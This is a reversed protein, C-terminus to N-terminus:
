LWSALLTAIGLFSAFGCVDTITTLVISSSQAPDQGVATLLIPIGAGAIGAAVMSVIMSIGIVMALGQSHSWLYVCVSTTLAVAVGNLFGVSVEKVLVRLWQRIRIERLALGRITVALAQAGTNGAQGAVVPLLVALTTFRAITNEFLGVVAAALFATALNIELWPLRKKVAFAPSSLAREDPSAGVLTLLDTSAEEQAAAMLEHYRIVGLLHEHFDIVPLSSLRRGELLEAIEERGATAQVRVPTGRSLQALTDDPPAVALDQLSVAGVLREEEDILFVDHIRRQRLARIRDLARAVTTEPRFSTVRPDMLSGATDPPYSILTRLERGTKPELHSLYRERVDDELRTLLPASRVPDMASLIGVAAMDDMQDLVFVAIDPTLNEFVALARPFSVKHVLDVIEDISLTELQRAAEDPYLAFFDDLLADAARTANRAM